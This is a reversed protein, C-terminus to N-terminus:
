RSKEGSHAFFEEAAAYSEPTGIDLFRGGGRWGFLGRGVWAPFIEREISAAGGSPISQLFRMGLLYIGANIWGPGTASGKEEFALVADDQDTTVRGYRDVNSMRTLLLTAEAGRSRRWDFMAPLDAECYSDGNLVLAPDSAVLPLALRLAGATGLPSPEQSYALRLGRYEDGFTEKMQEGFHGTCLVANRVGAAVLQDFLFTLFPRGGIQVAVKQRDGVVARLRTGLGGALIVATIASLDGM